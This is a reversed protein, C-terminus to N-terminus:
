EDFQHEYVEGKSNVVLVAKVKNRWAKDKQQYLKMGNEIDDRHFLSYKDYILAIQSRKTNAHKIANKVAVEVTTDVRDPTKQEYTILSVTGESFKHKGNKVNTAYVEFGDGEPTLIVNFGSDALYRAAEIEEEHYEHGKMYAMYAGSRDSVYSKDSDYLGTAMRVSFDSYNEAKNATSPQVIRTHGNAKAM